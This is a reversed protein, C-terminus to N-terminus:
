GGPPVAAKLDTAITQVWSRVADANRWDGANKKAM